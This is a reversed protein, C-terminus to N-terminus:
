LRLLRGGRYESGASLRRDSAPQRRHHEKHSFEAFAIGPINVRIATAIGSKILSEATNFLGFFPGWRSASSTKM